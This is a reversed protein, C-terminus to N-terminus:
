LPDNLGEEGLLEAKLADLAERLAEVAEMSACQWYDLIAQREQDNM